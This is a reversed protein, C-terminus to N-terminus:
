IPMLGIAKKSLSSVPFKGDFFYCHSLHPSFDNWEHTSILTLKNKREAFLAQTLTTRRDPDIFNLPEDLCLFTPSFLLARVLEITRREGYSMQWASKDIFEETIAFLRHDRFGRADFLERGLFVEFNEWGNLWPILSDEQLVLLSDVSPFEANVNDPQLVGSLIKLLTTKGCGSPGMIVNIGPDLEINASEFILCGGYSFSLNRVIM